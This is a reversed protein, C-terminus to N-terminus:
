LKLSMTIYKDTFGADRYMALAVPNSYHVNLSVETCGRKQYKDNIYTLLMKGYGKCRFPQAVIFNWLSVYKKDRRTMALAVPVNNVLMLTARTTAGEWTGALTTHQVAKQDIDHGYETWLKMDRAHLETHLANILDLAAQGYRLGNGKAPRPIEVFRIKTM